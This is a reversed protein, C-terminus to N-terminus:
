LQQEIQRFTSALHEQVLVFGPSFRNTQFITPAPRHYYFEKFFVADQPTFRFQFSHWDRIDVTLVGDKLTLVSRRPKAKWGNLFQASFIEAHTDGQSEFEM